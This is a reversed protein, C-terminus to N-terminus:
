PKYINPHMPDIWEGFVGILYGIDEPELGQHIGVYVGKDIINASVPYDSPTLYKFSPQNLLPLMDRVEVDRELLFRILNEKEGRRLLIPYMMWASGHVESEYPSYNKADIHPLQFHDGYYENLRSLGTTLHLANRRRAGLMQDVERDGLQALGIAAEAETLRFSHGTSDFKFRRGPTAQPAFNEGPNLCDLTLGHNTLSRMKGAYDPNDTIGLGGVGTVVLHSVYTSHCTIDAWHNAPKGAHDMFMMECSDHLVKLGHRNAIERVASLDAPQGFLSVPMIARTQNTILREIEEVAINYTDPRVDCFIPRMQNHLVVNASSIFTTAPVIVQDGRQWGHIEKMAQLAVQLSSTGSNSLIAYQAGHLEAFRREFALSMPGYSIRGSDLVANINARMADTVSFHGVGIHRTRPPAKTTM